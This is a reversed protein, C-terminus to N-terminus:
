GDAGRFVAGPAPRAADIRQRSMIEYTDGHFVRRHRSCVRVVRVTETKRRGNADLEYLEIIDVANQLCTESNASCQRGEAKLRRLRAAVDEASRAYGQGWRRATRGARFPPNSADPM